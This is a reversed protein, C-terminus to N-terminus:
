CCGVQLPKTVLAEPAALVTERATTWTRRGVETSCAPLAPTQAYHLWTPLSVLGSGPPMGRQRCCRAAMSCRCSSSAAMAAWGHPQGDDAAGDAAGDRERRDCGAPLPHAVPPTPEFLQSDHCAHCLPNTILTPAPVTVSCGELMVRTLIAGASVDRVDFMVKLNKMFGPPPRSADMYDQGGLPTSFPCPYHQCNSMAFLANQTPWDAHLPGLFREDRQWCVPHLLVPCRPVPSWGLATRGGRPFGTAHGVAAMFMEICILFNQPPTAPTADCSIDTLSSLFSEQRDPFAGADAGEVAWVAGGVVLMGGSTRMNGACCGVQLGAAVDDTDYTSWDPTSRILGLKACIDIFV